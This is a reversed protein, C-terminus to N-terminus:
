KFFNYILNFWYKKINYKFIEIIDLIINRKEM